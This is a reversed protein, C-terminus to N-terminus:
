YHQWCYEQLACAVVVVIDALILRGDKLAGFTELADIGPREVVRVSRSNDNKDNNNDDDIASM